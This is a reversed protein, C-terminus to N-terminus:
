RSSALVNRSISVRGIGEAFALVRAQGLDEVDEPKPLWVVRGVNLTGAKFPSMSRDTEVVQYPAMQMVVFSHSFENPKM